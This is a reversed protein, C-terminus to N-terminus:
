VKDHTGGLHYELVIERVQKVQYPKANKGKPQLNIIEEVAPHTYIYHDGKIRCHFGMAALVARLEEFSFNQDQKGSLLRLVRKEHQSM